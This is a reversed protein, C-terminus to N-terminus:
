FHISLRISLRINQSPFTTEKFFVSQICICLCENKISKIGRQKGTLTEALRSTKNIQLDGFRVDVGGGVEFGEGEGEGSLRWM